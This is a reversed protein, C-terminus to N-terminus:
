RYRHSNKKFIIDIGNWDAVTSDEKEEAMEEVKGVGEVEEVAM